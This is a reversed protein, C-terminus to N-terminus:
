LEPESEANDSNTILEKSKFPKPTKPTTKNRKKTSAKGSGAGSQRKRKTSSNAHPTHEKHAEVDHTPQYRDEFESMHNEKIFGYLFMLCSTLNEDREAGLALECLQKYATQLTRVSWTQNMKEAIDQWVIQDDSESGNAAAQEILLGVLDFKDGWLMDELSPPNLEATTVASERGKKARSKRRNKQSDRQLNEAEVHVQGPPASKRPKIEVHVSAPPVRARMIKWKSQCQLRSRTDGMERCVEHWNIVPTYDDLPPQGTGARYDEIRQSVISLIRVFNEEEDTTWRKTVRNEGHRVYDNWRNYCDLELRNLQMGILRWQGPHLNFLEQLQEDEDQSWHGRQCTHYNSRIHKKIDKVKRLLGASKIDDWFADCDKKFQAETQDTTNEGMENKRAPHWQIIEVLDATDLGNREQYDRIARRLLEKEDATLEGSTRKDAPQGLEHTNELAKDAATRDDDDRAREYTKNPNARSVGPKRTIGGISYRTAKKSKKRRSSMGDGDSDEFTFPQAPTEDLNRVPAEWDLPPTETVQKDKKTRKRKSANQTTGSVVVAKATDAADPLEADADLTEPAAKLTDKHADMRSHTKGASKSKQSRETNLKSLLTKPILPQEEVGLVGNQEDSGEFPTRLAEEQTAVPTESIKIPSRIGNNVSTPSKDKRRRKRSAQGETAKSSIPVTGEIAKYATASVNSGNNLDIEAQINKKHKRPRKKSAHPAVAQSSTSPMPSLARNAQPETQTDPVEIQTSLVTSPIAQSKSPSPGVFAQLDELAYTPLSSDHVTDRPSTQSRALQKRTPKKPKKKSSEPTNAITDQSAGDLNLPIAPGAYDTTRTTRAESMLQQSAAEDDM